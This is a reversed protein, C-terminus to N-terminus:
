WYLIEILVNDFVISSRNCCCRKVATSTSSDNNSYLIFVYCELFDIIPLNQGGTSHFCYDDCYSRVGSNVRKSFVRSGLWAQLLLSGIFIAHSVSIKRRACWILLFIWCIDAYQGDAGERDGHLHRLYSWRLVNFCVGTSPTNFVLLYGWAVMVPWSDRVCVPKPGGMYISRVFGYWVFMRLAGVAAGRGTLM